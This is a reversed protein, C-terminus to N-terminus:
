TYIVLLVMVILVITLAVITWIQCTDKTKLLKALKGMVFNMKETTEDLESEMEDLMRSQTSLEGHIESAMRHVRDVAGDLQDINEDQERM